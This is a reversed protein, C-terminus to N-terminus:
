KYNFYLKKSVLTLATTTECSTTQSIEQEQNIKQKPQLLQINETQAAETHQNQHVKSIFKPNSREWSYVIDMTQFM